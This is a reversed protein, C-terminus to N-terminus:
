VLEFPLTDVPPKEIPEILAVDNNKPDNVRRGIPYALLLDDPYQKLAARAEASARL